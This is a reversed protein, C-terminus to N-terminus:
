SANQRFEKKLTLIYIDDREKQSLSLIEPTHYKKLLDEMLEAIFTTYDVLYPLRKLTTLKILTNMYYEATKTLGLSLVKVIHERNAIAAKSLSMQCAIEEKPWILLAGMQFLEKGEDITVTGDLILRYLVTPTGILYRFQEAKCFEELTVKQSMQPKNQIARLKLLLNAMSKFNCGPVFEKIKQYNLEIRPIYKVENPGYNWLLQEDEKIEELSFYVQRFPQGKLNAELMMGINPPGDNVIAGENRFDKSDKNGEILYETKKRVKKAAVKGHYEGVITWKAIKEAAYIGYGPSKELKIGQEDHTTKKMYLRPRKDNLYKGILEKQFPLNLKLKPGLACRLYRAPDFFSDEAYVAGTLDQFRRHTLTTIGGEEHFLLPIEHDPDPHPETTYTIIDSYTAQMDNKAEPDAQYVLLRQILEYHHALAAHHLPTWGWKDALNPDAGCELLHLATDSRGLIVCVHLLTLKRNSIRHNMWNKDSNKNICRFFAKTLDINKQLAYSIISAPFPIRKPVLCRDLHYANQLSNM